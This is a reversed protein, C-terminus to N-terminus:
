VNEGVGVFCKYWEGLALLGERELFGIEGSKEGFLFGGGEAGEVTEGVLAVEEGFVGDEGSLWAELVGDRGEDGAIGRLGDVSGLGVFHDVEGFCPGKGRVSRRGTLSVVHL